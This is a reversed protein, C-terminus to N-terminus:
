RQCDGSPKASALLWRFTMQPAALVTTSMTLESVMASATRAACVLAGGLVCTAQSTAVIIRPAANRPTFTISYLSLNV